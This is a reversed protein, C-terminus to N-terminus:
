KEQSEEIRKPIQRDFNRKELKMRHFDGRQGRDFHPGQQVMGAKMMPRFHCPPMPPKHLAAFLSLALFVGVFSGATIKLFDRFGESCCLCKCETKREEKIETNMEETM